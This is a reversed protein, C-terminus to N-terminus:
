AGFLSEHDAISIYRKDVSQCFMWVDSPEDVELGSPLTVTVTNASIKAAADFSRLAFTSLRSSDGFLVIVNVNDDESFRVDRQDSIWTLTLERTQSDYSKSEINLPTANAPTLVWNEPRMTEADGFFEVNSKIFLNFGSMADAYRDWYPKIVSGMYKRIFQVCNTLKTRAAVQKVTRPNAVSTPMSRLYDIGKWSSGVVNAVKGSIGGLIGKRITGM